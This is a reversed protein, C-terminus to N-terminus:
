LFSGCYKKYGTGGAVSETMVVNNYPEEYEFIDKLNGLASCFNEFKRM